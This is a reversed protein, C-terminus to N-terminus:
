YGVKEPRPWTNRIYPIHPYRSVLNINKSMLKAVLALGFEMHAISLWTVISASSCSLCIM